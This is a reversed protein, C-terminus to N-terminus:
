QKWSSKEKLCLNPCKIIRLDSINDIADCHFNELLSCNSFEFEHLMELNSINIDKLEPCSVIHVRELCPCNKIKIKKSFNLNSIKLFKLNKLFSIEINEVNSEEIILTELDQINRLVLFCDSSFNRGLCIKLIRLNNLKSIHNYIFSEDLYDFCTFTISYINNVYDKFFEKLFLPDTDTRVWLEVKHADRSIKGYEQFYSFIRDLFESNIKMLSIEKPYILIDLNRFEDVKIEFLFDTEKSIHHVCNWILQDYGNELGVRLYEWVNVSDFDTKNMCCLVENKIIWQGLDEAHNIIREAVSPPINLNSLLHRISLFFPYFRSIDCESDQLRELLNLRKNM